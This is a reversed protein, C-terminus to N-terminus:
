GGLRKGGGKRREQEHPCYAFCRGCSFCLARNPEYGPRFTRISSRILHTSVAIGLFLGLLPTGVAFKSRIVAAEFAVDAAGRRSSAFAQGRDNALADGRPAGEGAALHEALQVVPHVRALPKGGAAGLAVGAALIAPMWLLVRKLRRVAQARGKRDLEPRPADIAGFPCAPECLRCRVCETPTITAHRRSFFSMWGLLVGYPCLFRCYPRAVVMGFALVALGFVIMPAEGDRRFFAVLPDYRCILFGSGTAMFLVALGLYAYAMLAPARILWRPLRPARIVFLDQLAGLPCVAGCFVRGWFLAVVLPAVFFVVIAAPVRYSADFFPLLVNQTAGVPCVCGKRWFGFYGLCALMLAAIAWRRRWRLAAAAALGLAALLAAADLGDKWPGHAAPAQMEPMRYGSEFDPQPFRLAADACVSQAALLALWGALRFAVGNMGRRRRDTRAATRNM